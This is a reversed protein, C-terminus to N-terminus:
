FGLLEKFKRFYRRSIPVFAGSQTRIRASASEELLIEDIHDLNVLFQKHCRVLNTKKELVSLTLETFFEGKPSVVYVGALESRVFEVESTSILKIRNTMICPISRIEPAAYVPRVGQTLNKKLKRITKALRETEVPKVLYDLANEEFAKVAYDDFATVFVTNPVAEEDIMGLLEFGNIAPMQVDLFLVDPKQQRIERLAEIANGCQSVAAFEGTEQLLAELEERAHLEDDVILARMM